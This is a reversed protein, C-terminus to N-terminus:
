MMVINCKEMKGNKLQEITGNNWQEKNWQEM